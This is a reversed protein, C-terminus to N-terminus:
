SHSNLIKALIELENVHGLAILTDGARIKADSSPNFLMTGDGKKIAVIIINMEQRIDSELLTLGSLKSNEGVKLQELQLEINKDQVTLELFDSVAPRIIAQAMKYGGMFYPLVVRDAGAIMLKKQTREEEARSLIFLDPNLGRATLIIFLNESDSSVVAVLGKARKIGGQMLVDESTADGKIFPIGEAELIPVLKEDDDIVLLPINSAKLEHAIIRGIRGYGCIIYHSRLSKIQRDLKRRGLIDRIQFEVMAQAVMGMSYAIVGIGLFILIISFIRGGESLPKLEGYGVTSITIVTMYLADLLKWGEIIMYGMTGIALVVSLMLLTRFVKQAELTSLSGYM